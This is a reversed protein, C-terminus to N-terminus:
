MSAYKSGSMYPSTMTLTMVRSAAMAKAKMAARGFYVKSMVKATKAMRDDSVPGVAALAEAGEELVGEAKEKVWNYADMQYEKDVFAQDHAFEYEYYCDFLTESYRAMRHGETYYSYVMPEVPSALVGIVKEEIGTLSSLHEKGTAPLSLKTLEEVVKAFSMEMMAKFFFSEQPFFAELVTQFSKFSASKAFTMNAAYGVRVAGDLGLYHGRDERHTALPLVMQRESQLRIDAFPSVMVWAAYAKPDPRGWNGELLDGSDLGVTVLVSRGARESDAREFGTFPGIGLQHAGFAGGSRHHVNLVKWTTPMEQGPLDYGFSNQAYKMMDAWIRLVDMIAAGDPRRLVSGSVLIMPRKCSYIEKAMPHYVDTLEMLGAVSLGNQLVPYTLDSKGGITFVKAANRLFKDRLTMNILPADSRLDMGVVVVMDSKMLANFDFMSDEVYTAVHGTSPSLEPSLVQLKILGGRGSSELKARVASWFSMVDLSVDPSLVVDLRRAGKGAERKLPHDVYSGAVNSLTAPNVLRTSLRDARDFGPLKELARLAWDWEVERVGHASAKAGTKVQVPESIHFTSDLSDFAYRGKDHAYGNTIEDKVPLRRHVKNKTVQGMLEYRAPDTVDFTKVTQLEWPRYMNATPKSTLAGVPCLDSVNGAVESDLKVGDIYTGIETHSGRGITGLVPVGATESMYRVCRTCHICRTMATAVVPGFDKDEVGRKPAYYYRSRDSGFAFTQDQLDCEGGQDCIPCDLPHHILLFDTVLERAKKARPSETFVKMNPSVPLACAVQPKPSGMVEVLCMRCNGAILLREDYCYRPLSFGLKQCAQIVTSGAVVEVPLGNVEIKIMSM